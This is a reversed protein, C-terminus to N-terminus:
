SPRYRQPDPGADGDAAAIALRGLYHQWGEGHRQVADETPLGTHRLRVLTGDGDRTLTVEVTTSGPPLGDNDDWGWTWVVREDPEVAVYQGVAVDGGNVDVRYKGGPQPDVDASVGMWACMRAPDVFYRFVTSPSADIKISVDVESTTM